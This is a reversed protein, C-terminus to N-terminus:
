FEGNEYRRIWRWLYNMYEDKIHQNRQAYCKFARYKDPPLLSRRTAYATLEAPSMAELNLTEGERRACANQEDPIIVPKPRPKGARSEEQASLGANSKEIIMEVIGPMRPAVYDHRVYQTGSLYVLTLHKQDKQPEAPAVPAPVQALMRRLENVQETTLIASHSAQRAWNPVERYVYAMGTTYIELVQYARPTPGTYEMVRLLLDPDHNDAATNFMLFAVEDDRSPTPRPQQQAQAYCPSLCLSLQLLLGTISLAIKKM